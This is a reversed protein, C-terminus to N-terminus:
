KQAESFIDNPKYNLCWNALPVVFGKEPTGEKWYHLVDDLSKATPICSPGSNLRRIVSTM